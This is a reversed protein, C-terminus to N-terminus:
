RILDGQVVSEIDARNLGIDELQRTSLQRLSNRTARRDNWTALNGVFSTFTFRSKPAASRFAFAAM